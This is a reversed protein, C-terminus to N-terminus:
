SMKLHFTDTLFNIGESENAGSGSLNISLAL